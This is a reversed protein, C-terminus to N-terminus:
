FLGLFISYFTKLLVGECIKVKVETQDKFHYLLSFFYKLYIM